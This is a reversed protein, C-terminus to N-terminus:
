SESHKSNQAAENLGSGSSAQLWVSSYTWNAFINTSFQFDQGHLEMSNDIGKRFFIFSRDVTWFIIM